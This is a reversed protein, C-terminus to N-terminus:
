TYATYAETSPGESGQKDCFHMVAVMDTTGEQMDCIESRLVVSSSSSRIVRIISSSQKKLLNSRLAYFANDASSGISGGGREEV